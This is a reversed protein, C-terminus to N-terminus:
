LLRFIKETNEAMNMLEDEYKDMLNNDNLLENLIEWNEDMYIKIEGIMDRALAFGKQLVPIRGPATFEDMLLLTAYKLDKNQQSLEKTNLLILQSWFINLIFQANALQDPTIGIYITMKKKRLERLDFDSTSTSLRLTESEFASIPANFSAMISSKTNDSDVNFYPKFAYLVVCYFSIFDM